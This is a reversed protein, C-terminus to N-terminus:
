LLRGVAGSAEPGLLALPAAEHTVLAVDIGQVGRDDFFQATLLALEYLPLAWGTGGPVAFVLQSPGDSALEDVLRRSADTDAPGSRFLTPYPFLTATPPPPIM